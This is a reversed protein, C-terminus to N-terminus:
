FGFVDVRMRVEWLYTQVGVVAHGRREKLREVGFGGIKWGARRQDETATRRVLQGQKGRGTRQETTDKRLAIHIELIRDSLSDNHM